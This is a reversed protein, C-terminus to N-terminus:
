GSRPSPDAAFEINISAASNIATMMMMREHEIIAIFGLDSSTCDFDPLTNSTNAPTHLPITM